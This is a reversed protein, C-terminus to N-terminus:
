MRCLRPRTRQNARKSANKRITSNCVPRDTCVLKKRNIISPKMQDKHIIRKCYPCRMYDPDIEKIIDRAKM